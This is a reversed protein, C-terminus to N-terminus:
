LLRVHAYFEPVAGDILFLEGTQPDFRGYIADSIADKEETFAFNCEVDFFTSWLYKELLSKPVHVVVSFRKHSTHQIQLKGEATLMSATFSGKNNTTTPPPENILGVTGTISCVKIDDGSVFGMFFPSLSKLRRNRKAPYM